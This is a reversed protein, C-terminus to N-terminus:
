PEKMLWAIAADRDLFLGMHVTRRNLSFTQAVKSRTYHKAECLFAIRTNEPFDLDLFDRDFTFMELGRGDGGMDVECLIRDLGHRRSEKLIQDWGNFHEDCPSVAQGTVYLYETRPRILIHFSM